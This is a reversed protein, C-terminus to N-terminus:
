NQFYEVVTKRKVKACIWSILTDGDMEHIFIVRDLIKNKGRFYLTSNKNVTHFFTSHKKLKLIWAIINDYLTELYLELLQDQFLINNKDSHSFPPSNKKWM